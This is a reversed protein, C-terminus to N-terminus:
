PERSLVFLISSEVAMLSRWTKTCLVPSSRQFTRWCCSDWRNLAQWILLACSSCEMLMTQLTCCASCVSFCAPRVVRRSCRRDLRVEAKAEGLCTDEQSQVVAICTLIQPVLRACM